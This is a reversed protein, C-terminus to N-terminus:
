REWWFGMRMGRRVMCAVHGVWRVSSSKMMRLINPSCYFNNLEEKDVKRWGRVM